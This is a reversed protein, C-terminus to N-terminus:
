VIFSVVIKFPFNFKLRFYYIFFFFLFYFVVKGILRTKIANCPVEIAVPLM